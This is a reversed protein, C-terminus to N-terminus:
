KIIPVSINIDTGGNLGRSIKLLGGINNIREKMTKLGLSTNINLAVEQNFGKGNDQIIALVSKDNLQLTVKLASAKAHKLVNTIAEQITRYLNIEKQETLIGKEIKQIDRSVFLEHSQEVRDLTGELAASLGFKELQFPHLDQSIARVEVLAESVLKQNEETSASTSELQKKILVLSQGVSDHLDRSIRKREEEQVHLLAASFAKKDNKEKYTQYLKFGLLALLGFSLASGLIYNSQSIIKDNKNSLILLENEQSLLQKEKVETEYLVQMEAIQKNRDEGLMSDRKTNYLKLYSLATATKGLAEYCKALRSYSEQMEQNGGMEMALNLSRILYPIAKDYEKQNMHLKALSQCIGSIGFKFGIEERIGLCKEYYVKAKQLDGLRGYSSGFNAYAFSMGRKDGQVERIKLVKEFYPLAEKPKNMKNLVNGITSTSGALGKLNGCKEFLAIAKQAFEISKDYNKLLNHLSAINGTARAQCFILDNKEASRLGELYYKLGEEYNGRLDNVRGIDRLANAQGITYNGEIAYPLSKQFFSLAEDFNGDYEVLIGLGRNAKSLGTLYSLSDSLSLCIKFYTPAENRRDNLILARGKAYYADAEIEKEDINQAIEIAKDAAELCEEKRDLHYYTYSLILHSKAEEKDSKLDIALSRAEEGYQASLPFNQGYYSQALENLIVLKEQPTQANDKSQLLSDINSSGWLIPNIVLILWFFNYKKIM